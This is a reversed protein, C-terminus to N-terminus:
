PECEKKNVPAQSAIFEFNQQAAINYLVISLGIMVWMNKFGIRMFDFAIAGMMFFALVSILLALSLLRGTCDGQRSFMSQAGWFLKIIRTFFFVLTMVGFIGTEIAVQLYTNHVTLLGPNWPNYYYDFIGRNDGLGFGTFPNDFFARIAADWLKYRESVSVSNSGFYNSIDLIRSVGDPLFPISLVGIMLALGVRVPTIVVFRAMVLMPLILLHCLIGTRSLSVVVGLLCCGVGALCLSRLWFSRTMAFFALLIPLTFATDAGLVNSHATTGTSRRVTQGLNQSEINSVEVGATAEGEELWGVREAIESGPLFRQIGAFAFTGSSVTVLCVLAIIVHKKTRLLNFTMIFFIITTGLIVLEQLGRKLDLADFLTLAGIFYYLIFISAEWRWVIKLKGLALHLGWSAITLLAFIKAVSIDIMPLIKGLEGVQDLPISAVTLYFGLRPTRFILYAGLGGVIAAAYFIPKDIIFFLSLVFGVCVATILVTNNAAVKIGAFPSIRWNTLLTKYAPM